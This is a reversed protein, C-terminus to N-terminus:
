TGATVHGRLMGIVNDLTTGTVHGLEARSTVQKRGTVHGTVALRQQQEGEQVGDSARKETEEGRRERQRAGGRLNVVLRVANGHVPRGPVAWRRIRRHVDKWFDPYAPVLTRDQSGTPM